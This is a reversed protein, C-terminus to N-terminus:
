IKENAYRGAYRNKLALEEAALYSKKYDKHMEYSFIGLNNKITGDAGANTLLKVMADGDNKRHHALHFATWGKKDQNNFDITSPTITVEFLNTGKQKYTESISSAVFATITKGPAHLMGLQLTTYGDSDQLNLDVKAAVLIKMMEPKDLIMAVHLATKGDQDQANLNIKKDKIFIKVASNKCSLTTNKITTLSNSIAQTTNMSKQSPIKPTPNKDPQPTIPLENTVLFTLINIANNYVAKHVITAGQRNLPQNFDVSKRKSLKQIAIPDDHLLATRIQQAYAINGQSVSIPALTKKSSDHIHNTFLNVLPSETDENENELCSYQSQNSESSTVLNKTKLSSLGNSLLNYSSPSKKSQSAHILNQFNLSLTVLAIYIKLAKV